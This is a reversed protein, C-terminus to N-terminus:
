CQRTALLRAGLAFTDEGRLLHAPSGGVPISGRWCERLRCQLVDLRIALMSAADYDVYSAGAAM